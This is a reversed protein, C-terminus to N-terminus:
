SSVVSVRFTGLRRRVLLVEPVGAEVPALPQYRILLDPVLVYRATGPRVRNVVATLHEHEAPDTVFDAGGAFPEGGLAREIYPPLPVEGYRKLAEELPLPSLLRVVRNGSDRVELIEVSNGALLPREMVNNLMRALPALHTGAPEDASAGYIAPVKSGMARLYAALQGRHRM